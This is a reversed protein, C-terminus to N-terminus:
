HKNHETARLRRLLTVVGKQLEKSRVQKNKISRAEESGRSLTHTRQPGYTRVSTEGHHPAEM